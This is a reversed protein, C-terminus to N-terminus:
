SKSRHSAKCICLEQKNPIRWRPQARSFVGARVAVASKWLQCTSLRMVPIPPQNPNGETPLQTELGGSAADRHNSAFNARGSVLLPMSQQLVSMVLRTEDVTYRMSQLDTQAQECAVTLKMILSRLATLGQATLTSGTSRMTSSCRAVLVSRFGARPGNSM